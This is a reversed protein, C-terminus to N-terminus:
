FLRCSDQAGPHLLIGLVAPCFICIPMVPMAFWGNAATMKFASVVPLTKCLSLSHM